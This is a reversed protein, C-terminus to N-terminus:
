IGDTPQEPAPEEKAPEEPAPEEKPPEESTPEEKPPEESTPEEKAPEEAGPEEKPEEAGPEESKEGCDVGDEIGDGDKDGAEAGGECVTECAESEGDIICETVCRTGDACEKVCRKGHDTENCVEECGDGLSYPEEKAEDADESAPIGDGDKDEDACLFEDNQGDGDVDAEEGVEGGQACITEGSSTQYCNVLNSQSGVGTNCAFASLLSLLALGRFKSLM